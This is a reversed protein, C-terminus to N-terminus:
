HMKKINNKFERLNEDFNNYEETGVWSDVSYIKTDKLYRAFFMSSNGEFSGIELLNNISKNKIVSIFNFTHPPFYDHTIKKKLYNINEKKCKKIEKKIIFNSLKSLFFKRIIDSGANSKKLFFVKKIFNIM